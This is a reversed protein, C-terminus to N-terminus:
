WQVAQLTVVVLFQYKYSTKVYNEEETEKQMFLVSIFTFSCSLVCSLSSLFAFCVHALLPLLIVTIDDHKPIIKGHREEQPRTYHIKGLISWKMVHALNVGLFEKTTRRIYLLNNVLFPVSLFLSPCSLPFSPFLSLSYICQLVFSPLYSLTQIGEM